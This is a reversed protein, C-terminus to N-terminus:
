IKKASFLFNLINGIQIALKERDNKSISDELSPKHSQVIQRATEKSFLPLSDNELTFVLEYINPILEELGSTGIKQYKEVTKYFNEGLLSRFSEWWGQPPRKQLNVEIGKKEVSEAIKFVDGCYEDWTKEDVSYHSFIMSFIMLSSAKIEDSKDGTLLVTSSLLNSIETIAFSLRKLKRETLLAQQLSVLSSNEPLTRFISIVVDALGEGTKNSVPIMQNDFITSWTAILKNREKEPLDKLEDIHTGAVVIHGDFVQKLELYFNRLAKKTAHLPTQSADLMWLITDPALDHRIEDPTLYVKESGLKSIFPVNSIQKFEDDQQLGLFLRTINEFGLEDSGQIGPTDYLVLGTPFEVRLVCDTTDPTREVKAIDKGFLANLLSTKGASTMGVLAIKPASLPKHSNKLVKSVIDLEQDPYNSASIFKFNEILKKGVTSFSVTDILRGAGDLLDCIDSIANTYKDIQM